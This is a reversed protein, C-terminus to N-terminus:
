YLSYIYDSIIKENDSLKKDYITRNGEATIESLVKQSEPNYYIEKKRIINAENDTTIIVRKEKFERDNLNDAPRNYRDIIYTNNGSYIIRIYNLVFHKDNYFVIKKLGLKKVYPLSYILSKGTSFFGERGFHDICVHYLDETSRFTSRGFLYRVKRIFRESGDYFSEEIVKGNGDYAYTYKGYLKKNSNLFLKESIYDETNFHIIYIYTDIVKKEIRTIRGKDRYIRVEEQEVGNDSYYTMIDLYSISSTDYFSKIVADVNRDSDYYNYQEVCLIRGQMDKKVKKIPLGKTFFNFVIHNHEEKELLLSDKYYFSHKVLLENQESDEVRETIHQATYNKNFIRFEITDRSYNRSTYLDGDSGYEEMCLLENDKYMYYVDKYPLSNALFGKHVLFGDSNYEYAEGFDKENYWYEKKLLQGKKNYKESVNKIGYRYIDRHLLEGETDFIYMEEVEGLQDTKEIKKVRNLEDYYARYQHDHERETNMLSININFLNRCPDILKKNYDMANFIKMATFDFSFAVYIQLLFILVYYKM